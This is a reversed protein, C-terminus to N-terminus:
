DRNRCQTLSRIDVYLRDDIRYALSKGDPSWIPQHPAKGEPSIPQLRGSTLDVIYLRDGAEEHSIVAAGTLAEAEATATAHAPGPMSRSCAASTLYAAIAVVAVRIRNTAFSRL